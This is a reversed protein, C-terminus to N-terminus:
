TLDGTLRLAWEIQQKTIPHGAKARDLTRHAEAKARMYRGSNPGNRRAMRPYLTM